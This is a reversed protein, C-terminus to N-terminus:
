PDLTTQVACVEIECLWEPRCLDAVVVATPTEATLGYAYAAKLFDRFDDKRKLYATANVVDRLQM